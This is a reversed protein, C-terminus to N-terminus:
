GSVAEFSELEVPINGDVLLRILFDSYYGIASFYAPGLQFSETDFYGLFQRGGAPQTTDAGIFAIFTAINGIGVLVSGNGTTITPGGTTGFGAYATSYGTGGAGIKALPDPSAPYGSATLPHWFNVNVTQLGYLFLPYWRWYAGRIRFPVLQTTATSGGFRMGAQGTYFAGWGSEYSGDDFQLLTSARPKAEKTGSQGKRDFQLRHAAAKALEKGKQVNGVNVGEPKPPHTGRKERAQGAMVALFM